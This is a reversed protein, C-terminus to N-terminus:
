SKRLEKLLRIKVADPVKSALVLDFLVDRDGTLTATVENGDVPGTISVSRTRVKRKRRKGGVQRCWYSVLTTSLPQGNEHRLGEAALLDTIEKQTLNRTDEGGFIEKLRKKLRKKTESSLKTSM